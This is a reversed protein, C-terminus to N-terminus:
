LEESAQSPEEVSMSHSTTKSARTGHSHTYPFATKSGSNRSFIVSIPDRWDQLLARWFDFNEQPVYCHVHLCNWNAACSTVYMARVKSVGLCTFIIIGQGGVALTELIRFISNKALPRVHTKNLYAYWSATNIGESLPCEEGTQASCTIQEQISDKINDQPPYIILFHPSLKICDALLWHYVIDSLVKASELYIRYCIIYTYVCWYCLVLSALRIV